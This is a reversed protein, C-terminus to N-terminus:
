RPSELTTGILRGDTPVGEGSEHGDLNCSLGGSTAGDPSDLLASERALMIGDSNGLKIGDRAGDFRLDM